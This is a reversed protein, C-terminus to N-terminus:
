SEVRNMWAEISSTLNESAWATTMTTTTIKRNRPLKRATSIGTTVIGKDSIPAPITM